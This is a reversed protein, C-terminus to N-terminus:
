DMTRSHQDPETSIEIVLPSGDPNDRWRADHRPLYGYQDLLAKARAVSTVGNETRLGPDYGYVKPMLISQAPFAQFKYYTRIQEPTNFGLNIARRLAVRA